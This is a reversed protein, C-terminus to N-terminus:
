QGSNLRSIGQRAQNNETSNAEAADLALQYHDRAERRDGMAEYVRALSLEPQAKGPCARAADQYYGLAVEYKGSAYQEDGHALAKHMVADDCSGPPPPTTSIAQQTQQARMEEIERQQREIQTKQEEVQQQMAAVQQSACGGTLFAFAAIAFLTNIRVMISERGAM